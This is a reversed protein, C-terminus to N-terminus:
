SVRAIIDIWTVEQGPQTWTSHIAFGCDQLLATIEDLQYYAFFRPGTAAHWAKGEGHVLGVFVPAHARAVRHIEQLALPAEARPLHLLSACVWVGDVSASAFPLARMDCRALPPGVRWHAERLMGCSLDAGVAYFGRKRLHGSDRGPGCGVDLVRAHAPLLTTFGDLAKSLYFEWTNAAFTPAIRDYTVITTEM